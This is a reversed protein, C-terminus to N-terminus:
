SYRKLIKAKIKYINDSSYNLNYGIKDLKYRKVYYQYIVEYEIGCLDDPIDTALMGKYFKIKKVKHELYDKALFNIIGLGIAILINCYKSIDIKVLFVISILQVVTTIVRCLIISKHASKTFDSGHVAKTFESRILTYTLLFTLFEILKDSIFAVTLVIFLCLIDYVTNKVRYKLIISNLSKKKKM